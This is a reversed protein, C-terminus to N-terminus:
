PWHRSEIIEQAVILSHKERLFSRVKLVIAVSLGDKQTIAEARAEEISVYFLDTERSVETKSVSVKVKDLLRRIMWAAAHKRHGPANAFFASITTWFPAFVTGDIFRHGSNNTSEVCYGLFSTMAIMKNWIESETIREAAEDLNVHILADWSGVLRLGAERTLPSNYLQPFTSGYLAHSDMQVAYIKCDWANIRSGRQKPTSSLWSQLSRALVSDLLLQIRPIPDEHLWQVLCARAATSSQEAEYQNLWRSVQRVSQDDSSTRGSSPSPESVLPIDLSLLNNVVIEIEPRSRCKKACVEYRGQSIAVVDEIPMRRAEHVSLGNKRELLDLYAGPIWQSLDYMRGLVIKDVASALPEIADLSARHLDTFGWKSALHL